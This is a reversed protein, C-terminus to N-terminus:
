LAALAATTLRVSVMYWSRFRTVSWIPALRSHGYKTGVPMVLLSRLRGFAGFSVSSVLLWSMPWAMLLLATLLPLIVAASTACLTNSAM